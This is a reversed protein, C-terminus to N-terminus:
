KEVQGLKLQETAELGLGFELRRGPSFCPLCEKEKRENHRIAQGHPGPSNGGIGEV